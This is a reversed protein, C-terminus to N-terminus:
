DSHKVGLRFLKGGIMKDTFLVGYDQSFQENLKIAIIRKDFGDRRLSLMKEVCEDPWALNKRPRPAIKQKTKILDQALERYIDGGCIKEPEVAGRYSGALSVSGILSTHM